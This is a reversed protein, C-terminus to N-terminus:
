ARIAPSGSYQRWTTRADAISVDDLSGYNLGGVIGISQAGTAAPVLLLSLVLALFVFLWPSRNTARINLLANGSTKVPKGTM